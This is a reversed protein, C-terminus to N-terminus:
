RFLKQVLRLSSVILKLKKQTKSTTQVEDLIRRMETLNEQNIGIITSKIIAARVRELANKCEEYAERLENAEAWNGDMRADTMEFQLQPLISELDTEIQNLELVDIQNSSVVQLQYVITQLKNLIEDNNSMYIM